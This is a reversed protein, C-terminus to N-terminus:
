RAGDGAGPLPLVFKGEGLFAGDGIDIAGVYYVSTGLERESVLELRIPIAETRTVRERTQLSIERLYAEGPKEPLDRDVCAYVIALQAIWLFAVPAALHFEGDGPMFHSRVRLEGEIRGPEYRIRELTLDDERWGGTLYDSLFPEIQARTLDM